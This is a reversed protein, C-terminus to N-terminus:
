IILTFAHDVLEGTYASTEICPLQISENLDRFNEVTLIRYEEMEWKNGVMILPM